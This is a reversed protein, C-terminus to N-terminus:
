QQRYAIFVVPQGRHQASDAFLPALDPRADLEAREVGGEHLAFGNDWLIVDGPMFTSLSPRLLDHWSATDFRDVGLALSLYPHLAIIHRPREPLANVKEAFRLASRQAPLLMLDSSINLAAPNPTFPFVLVAVLVVGFLTHHIWPRRDGIAQAVASIGFAAVIVILPAVCILVRMLGMSDFIGFYWFLSHAAVFAALAAAVLFHRDSRLRQKVWAVALAIVGSWFLVYIPVGVVIVMDIVFHLMSGHGYPSHLHAYPIRSFTWLLDHHVAYGAISYVVTGIFLLPLWRWRGQLAHHIAFVGIMILGESRVFPLFSVIVLSLGHRQCLDADIAMCLACAFMPETLGSFTLAFFLPSAVLMIPAMIAAGLEMRKAIRHTLVVSYGSLLANFVKIGTFGFQAFPSALLVFLPKAWHHFFLAPHQPAYHAYLYHNVSDGDDGTGDCFLITVCALAAYVLLVVTISLRPM